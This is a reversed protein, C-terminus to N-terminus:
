ILFAGAGILAFMFGWFTVMFWNPFIGQKTFFVPSISLMSKPHKLSFSFLRAQKKFNFIDFFDHRLDMYKGKLKLHGIEHELVEDHLEPYKKLNENLEIWVNEGDQSTFGIGYDIYKIEPQMKIKLRWKM